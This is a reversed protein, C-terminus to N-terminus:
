MIEKPALTAVTARNSERIARVDVSWFAGESIASFDIPIVKDSGESLLKLEAKLM